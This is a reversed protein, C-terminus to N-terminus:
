RFELAGVGPHDSYDISRYRVAWVTDIPQQGTGLWVVRRRVRVKAKKTKRVAAATM